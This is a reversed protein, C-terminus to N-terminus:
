VFVDLTQEEASLEHESPTLGPGQQLAALFSM